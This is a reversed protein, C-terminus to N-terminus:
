NGGKNKKESPKKEGGGKGKGKGQPANSPQPANNKHAAAASRQSHQDHHAAAPQPQSPKSQKARSPASQPAHKQQHKQGNSPHPANNARPASSQPRDVHKQHKQTSVSSTSAPPRNVRGTSHHGGQAHKSLNRPASKQVSNQPPAGQEGSVDAAVTPAPVKHSKGRGGPGANAGGATNAALNQDGGRAHKNLNRPNGGGQGGSQLPTGQEGPVSPAVTPAPVKHNKGRGGPGANAGGTANAALNQDGGRAHKNSNRRNGGGQDDGQPPTGQEAPVSHAM